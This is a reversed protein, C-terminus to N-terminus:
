PEMARSAAARLAASDACHCIAFFRANLRLAVTPSARAGASSLSSLTTLGSISRKVRKTCFWEVRTPQTSPATTANEASVAPSPNRSTGSASIAPLTISNRKTKARRPSTVAPGSALPSRTAPWAAMTNTRPPSSAM